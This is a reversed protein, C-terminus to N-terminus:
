LSSGGAMATPPPPSGAKQRWVMSPDYGFYNMKKMFSVTKDHNKDSTMIFFPVFIGGAENVVDMLNSVLREMIYVPHTLGIDYMCKPDDSGLRTGMGGALLVAAVKGQRVAELGIKNFEERRRTVEDLEMAAIPSINKEEAAANKHDMYQLISFDTEEVQQLLEAKQGEDLEDYYKLVHLQGYKELKRYAEEYTM